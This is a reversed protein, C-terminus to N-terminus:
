RGDKEPALTYLWMPQQTHQAPKEVERFRMDEATSTPIAAGGECDQQSALLCFPALSPAHAGASGPVGSNEAAKKGWCHLSTFIIIDTSSSVRSQSTLCRAGSCSSVQQLRKCEPEHDNRWKVPNPLSTRPDCQRLPAAVAVPPTRHEEGWGM